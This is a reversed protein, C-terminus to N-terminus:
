FKLLSDFKKKDEFPGIVALNLKQDVFIDRAVRQIDEKTVKEIKELAEEPTEIEKRLLEQGTYYSAVRFSDELALVMKGRAFDKARRLEEDAVPKQTTLNYQELIAKVAESLNSTKLGAQTVLYGADHFEINDSAIFYALGRKVRVESFMRSSMNGGLITGLVSLVYRDPHNMDYARVGLCINSQEMKKNYIFSVPRKQSETVKEYQNEGGSPITGFYKKVLDMTNEPLDGALGVVLAESHYLRMAYDVLEKRSVDRIKEKSGLVHWALPQDGYLLKEFIESIREQPLDEYMNIEETIVGREKDMEKADFLSNTLMDSLIDLILETHRSEAKIYFGTYEKGTFANFSAGIGDLLSAIARNNPRKKTGKFAMHELFHSLGNIKKTEYRSGAEIMVLASVTKVTSM